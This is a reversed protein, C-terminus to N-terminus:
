PFGTKDGDGLLAMESDDNQSHFGVMAGVDNTQNLESSSQNQSAIAEVNLDFNPPNLIPSKRSPNKKKKINITKIKIRRRKLASDGFQFEPSSVGNVSSSSNASGITTPKTPAQAQHPTHAHTPEQNLKNAGANSGTNATISDDPTHLTPTSEHINKEFEAGQEKPTDAVRSVQPSTPANRVESNLIDINAPIEGEELEEDEDADEEESESYLAPSFPKFPFWYDDVESVGVHYSVGDFEVLIEENIKIRKQTIICAKGHSIDNSSWFSKNNVLIKGFQGAITAMNAEDMGLLPVGIIKIWAIRDVYTDIKGAQKVWNFWKLWIGKNLRFAEAATNSTFKLIIRLGGDYKIESINYGEMELLSPFGCLLDFSRVEGVLAANSLWDNIQSSKALIIKPKMTNPAEMANEGKTVEAFSRGNRNTPPPPRHVQPPPHRRTMIKIPAAPKRPHLSVNAKLYRGGVSVENLAQVTVDPNSVNAYKVFAFFAGGKDRRGPVYVDTLRGLKSCPKWIDSRRADCPVNTVYFSTIGVENSNGPKRRKVEQWQM